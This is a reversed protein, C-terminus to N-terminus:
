VSCTMPRTGAPVGASMSRATAAARSANSRPGQGRISGASRASIRALNASRYALRRSSNAAKIVACIPAGIDWGRCTAAAAAPHRYKPWSPAPKAHSSRRSPIRPGTVTRRSGTPTTAAIVGHFPGCTVADPLNAGASTAPHVTTHFGAGSVGSSAYRNASSIWSATIGGPTTLITAAPGSEPCCKTLWGPTSLTVKVPDVAAPRRIPAMQPSRSLRCVSSSPPLDAAIMQSSASRVAVM